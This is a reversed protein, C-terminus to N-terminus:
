RCRRGSASAGLAVGEVARQAGALGHQVDAAAGLVDRQWLSELAPVVDHEVDHSARVDVDDHVGALEGLGCLYSGLAVVGDVARVHDLMAVLLVDRGEEGAELADQHIAAQEYDPGRVHALDDLRQIVVLEVVLRVDRRSARDGEPVDDVPVPLGDSVAIWEESVLSPEGLSSEASQQGLGAEHVDPM